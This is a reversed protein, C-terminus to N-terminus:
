KREEYGTVKARKSPNIKQHGVMEPVRLRCGAPSQDRAHKLQQFNPVKGERVRSFFTESKNATM